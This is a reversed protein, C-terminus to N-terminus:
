AVIPQAIIWLSLVTYAVMLFLLPLQNGITARTEKFLSLAVNHAPYVALVHGMVIATVAACWAFQADVVRMMGILGLTVALITHCSYRQRLMSIQPMM